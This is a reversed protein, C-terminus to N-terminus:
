PLDHRRRVLWETGALGILLCTIFWNDWLPRELEVSTIIPETNVLSELDALESLSLVKGGSLEAIRALHDKRAGTEQLEQQVGSVQFEISNSIPQDDVNAEVRYRGAVPPSFYGEYLGPNSQVPLLSVSLQSDLEGLGVVNVNFRTQQVAEYKDNLVHAYLRAQEGTAYAARDTELRIQKHEGMLRSLTMFQICQSWIRWHYKDGAKFRLRWLRDTAISMCKGTGYRQWAVLPYPSAREGTDSLGVSFPQVSNPRWCHHWGTSHLWERGSM